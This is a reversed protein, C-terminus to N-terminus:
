NGGQLKKIKLLTKSGCARYGKPNGNLINEIVPILEPYIWDFEKGLEFVARTCFALNATKDPHDLLEQLCGELLQERMTLSLLRQIENEKKSYFKKVLISGIKSLSRMGSSNIPLVFLACIEKLFPYCDSEYLLFSQELSWCAQHSVGSIPDCLAILEPLLKHTVAAHGLDVRDKKYAKLVQLQKKLDQATM